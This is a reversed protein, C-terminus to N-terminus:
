GPIQQPLITLYAVNARSCFDLLKNLNSPKIATNPQPSGCCGIAATLQAYWKVVPPSRPAAGRSFFAAQLIFQKRNARIRVAHVGRRCREANARGTRYPM